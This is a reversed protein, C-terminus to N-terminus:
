AVREDWTPGQAVEVCAAQVGEFEREDLSLKSSWYSALKAGDTELFGTAESTTFFVQWAALGPADGVIVSVRHPQAECRPAAHASIASLVWPQSDSWKVQGAAEPFGPSIGAFMAPSAKRPLVYLTEGGNTLVLNYNIGASHMHALCGELWKVSVEPWSLVHDLVM